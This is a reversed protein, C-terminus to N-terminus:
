LFYSPNDRCDSKFSDIELCPSFILINQFAVNKNAYAVIYKSTMLCKIMRLCFIIKTGEWFHNKKM